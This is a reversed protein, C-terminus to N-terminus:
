SVVADLLRVARDLDDARGVKVLEEVKSNGLYRSKRFRVRIDDIQSITTATEDIDDYWDFENDNKKMAIGEAEDEPSRSGGGRTRL